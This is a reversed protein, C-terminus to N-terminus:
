KWGNCAAVCAVVTAVMAAGVCSSDKSGYTAIGAGIWIGIIAIAPYM